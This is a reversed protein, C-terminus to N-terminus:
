RNYQQEVRNINSHPPIPTAIHFSHPLPLRTHAFHFNIVNPFHLMEESTNEKNTKCAFINLVTLYGSCHIHPSIYSSNTTVEFHDLFESTYNVLITVTFVSIHMSIKRRSLSVTPLFSGSFQLGVTPKENVVISWCM